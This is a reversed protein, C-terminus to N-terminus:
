ALHMMFVPKSTRSPIGQKIGTDLIATSKICGCGLISIFSVLWFTEVNWPHWLYVGFTFLPL